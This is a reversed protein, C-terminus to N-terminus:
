AAASINFVARQAYRRILAALRQKNTKDTFRIGNTGALRRLEGLSKKGIEKAFEEDALQGLGVFERQLSEKDKGGSEVFVLCRPRAGTSAAGRTEMGFPDHAIRQRNGGKGM